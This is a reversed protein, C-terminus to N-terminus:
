FLKILKLIGVRILLAWPTGHMVFDWWDMFQMGNAGGMVWKVKGWIHPEPFFPALGITLCAILIIKWNNLIDM